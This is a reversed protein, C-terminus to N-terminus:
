VGMLLDNNADDLVGYLIIPFIDRERLALRNIYIEYSLQQCLDDISIIDNHNTQWWISM